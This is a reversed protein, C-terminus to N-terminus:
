FPKSDLLGFLIGKINKAKQASLGTSYAYLTDDLDTSNTRKELAKNWCSLFVLQVELKWARGNKWIADHSRSVSYAGGIDMNEKSQMQMHNEQRVLTWEEEVKASVKERGCSSTASSLM